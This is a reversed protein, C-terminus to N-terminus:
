HPEAPGALTALYTALADKEATNGALPPMFRLYTNKQPDTESILDLFGRIAERDRERLLRAMSRYGERTHCALCQSRFMAEGTRAASPPGLDRWVRAWMAHQLHGDRDQAAVEDARVGSSYIVGRLLWPKRVVERVWETSMSAIFALALLAGALGREFRKPNQYPGLYVIVTTTITAMVLIMGVRLLLSNSGSATGAVGGEILARAEPPVARLAWFGCPAMLVVAPLVWVSSWRMIRAQLEEDDLPAATYFSWIAALMFCVATRLVLTPWFTPNFFGGWPNGTVPLTGSTLMSSLIGNIIFLSGWASVFYIWGIREHTRRSLRDWGYYYFALSIVEVLFFVWEIAWLLVYTRILTATGAAHVLSIAFWIGVGLPASVAATLVLFFKAHGRLWEYMDKDGIRRAHRELLPLYLGGGVAFQAIFVHVTAILGIIWGSGVYPVEWIPYKM